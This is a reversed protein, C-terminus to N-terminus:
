YDKMAIAIAEEVLQQQEPLPEDIYIIESVTRKCHFNIGIRKITRDFLEEIAIKNEDDQKFEKKTVGVGILVPYKNTQNKINPALNPITRQLTSMVLPSLQEGDTPTLIVLADAQIIDSTLSNGQDNIVCKGPTKTWCHYCNRCGEIDIELLNMTDIIIASKKLEELLMEHIQAYENENDLSNLIIARM